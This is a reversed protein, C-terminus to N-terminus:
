TWTLPILKAPHFQNKNKGAAPAPYVGKNSTDGTPCRVNYGPPPTLTKPRMDQREPILFYVRSLSLDPRLSSWVTPGKLGWHDACGDRDELHPGSLFSCPAGLDPVDLGALSQESGWVPGWAESEGGDRGQGLM